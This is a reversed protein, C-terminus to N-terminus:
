YNVINVNEGQQYYNDGVIALEVLLKIALSRILNIEYKGIIIKHTTYYQRYISTYIILFYLFPASVTTLKKQITSMQATSDHIHVQDPRVEV